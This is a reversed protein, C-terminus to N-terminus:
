RVAEVLYADIWSARTLLRKGDKVFKLQRESHLDYIRRDSCRLYTAAEAVSLYPESTSHLSAERIMQNVRAAIETAVGDPDSVLMLASNPQTKTEMIFLYGPIEAREASASFVEPSFGGPCWVPL